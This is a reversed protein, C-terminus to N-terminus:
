AQSTTAAEVSRLEDAIAALVAQQVEAVSGAIRAGSALRHGGGGFRQCVRCVDARDDKSRLSIRVNGDAMEEFYAAVVVGQVARIYDILGESDDPQAGVQRAAELTLTISAIRGDASFQRGDLVSCMLELRRRPYSEYLKQSLPGVKVGLKILEAAIEYTRATTNPYQFSGTDTSIAAFLLEAMPLTLPLREQTFLEYLVQGAAPAQADIYALDGYHNNSIHHDINVWLDARKVAQFCSGVRNQVATDVAIAVEFEQPEAPPPTLWEAHPLFAFKESMGDQNWVAVDKGLARLCAAMALTCGYADGDPRFHSMVAFRQKERLVRGIESFQCNM